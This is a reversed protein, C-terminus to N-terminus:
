PAHRHTRTTDSPTPPPPYPPAPRTAGNRSRIPLLPHARDHPDAPRRRAPDGRAGRHDPEDRLDLDALPRRHDPAPGRPVEPAADHRVGGRRPGDAPDRM